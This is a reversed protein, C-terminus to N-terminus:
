GSEKPAGTQTALHQLKRAMKNAAQQFDDATKEAEPREDKDDADAEDDSAQRSKRKVLTASKSREAQCFIHKTYEDDPHMIPSDAAAERM